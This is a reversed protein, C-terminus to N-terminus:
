RDDLRGVVDTRDKIRGVNDRSEVVVRTTGDLDLRYALQIARVLAM